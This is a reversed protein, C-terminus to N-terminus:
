RTGVKGESKGPTGTRGLGTDPATSPGPQVGPTGSKVPVRETPAPTPGAPGGRGSGRRQEIKIKIDDKRERARDLVKTLASKAQDPVKDLVRQLVDLHREANRNLIDELKNLDQGKEKEEDADKPQKNKVKEIDKELKDLLKDSVEFTVLRLQKSVSDEEVTAIVFQGISPAIAGQAFQMTFVRGDREVLTIQSASVDMVLGQIHKKVPQAPIVLIQLATFNGPTVSALVAIRDGVRINNTTAAQIPPAMIRTQSTVTVRIERTEGPEVRTDITLATASVVKVVGFLGQQPPRAVPLTVAPSATVVPLTTPAPSLTPSSAPTPTPGSTPTPSPTQAEAVQTLPIFLFIFLLIIAMAKNLQRM